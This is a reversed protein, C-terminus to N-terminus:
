LTGPTIVEGTPLEDHFIRKIRASIDAILAAQGADDRAGYSLASSMHKVMMDPSFGYGWEKILRQDVSNYDIFGFGQERDYFMNSPNEVETLVGAENAEKITHALEAIQEDTIHARDEATLETVDKGPMLESIIVGKEYSIGVIQELHPIGRGRMAALTYNDVSEPDPATGTLMYDEYDNMSRPIKAVYRKGDKEILFGDSRVGSGLYDPHVRRSKVDDPDFAAMLEVVPEEFDAFARALEARGAILDPRERKAKRVTEVYDDFVHAPMQDSLAAINGLSQFVQDRAEMNEFGPLKEDAYHAAQAQLEEPSKERINM